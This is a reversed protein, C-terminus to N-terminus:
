LKNAKEIIFYSDIRYFYTKFEEESYYKIETNYQQIKTFYQM